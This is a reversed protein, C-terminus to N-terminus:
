PKLKQPQQHNVQSRSAKDQEVKKEFDDGDKGTYGEMHEFFEELSMGRFRGCDVGTSGYGKNKNSTTFGYKQVCETVKSRTNYFPHDKSTNAIYDLTDELCVYRYVVKMAQRYDMFNMDSM